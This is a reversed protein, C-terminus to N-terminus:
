ATVALIDEPVVGDEFEPYYFKIETAAWVPAAMVALLLVLIWVRRKM